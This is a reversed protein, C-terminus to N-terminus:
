RLRRKVVEEKPSVSPGAAWREVAKLPVDHVVSPLQVEVRLIANPTLAEAAWAERRFTALAAAAAEFLTSAQIETTHKIGQLDRLSVACTRVPPVPSLIVRRESFIRGAARAHASPPLSASTYM